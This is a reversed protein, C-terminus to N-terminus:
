RIEERGAWTSVAKTHLRSLAVHVLRYVEQIWPDIQESECAQACVLLARGNHEAVSGGEHEACVEMLLSPVLVKPIGYDQVEIALRVRVGDGGCPSNFLVAETQRATKRSVWCLSRLEATPLGERKDQERVEEYKAALIRASLGGRRFPISDAVDIVWCGVFPAEVATASEILVPLPLDAEVVWEKGRLIEAAMELWNQTAPNGDGAPLRACVAEAEALRWTQVLLEAYRGISAVGRRSGSPLLRALRYRVRLEGVIDGRRAAERARLGLSLAEFGLGVLEQYLAEVGEMTGAEIRALIQEKLNAARAVRQSQRVAERIQAEPGAVTRYGHGDLRRCLQLADGALEYIGAEGTESVLLYREPIQALVEGAIVGRPARGQFSARKGLGDWVRLTGDSRGITYLRDGEVLLTYWERSHASAVKLKRTHLDYSVLGGGEAPYVIAHKAPWFRPRVLALKAPPRPSKIAHLLRRGLVDWVFLGGGSSLGLMQGDPLRLLSCLRGGDCTLSEPVESGCLPPWLLCRGMSDTSALRSGELLCVSLVPGGQLLARIPAPASTDARPPWQWLEIRGARDGFAVLGNETDMDIAYVSHGPTLESLCEPPGADSGVAWVGPHQGGTGLFLMSALSAVDAM